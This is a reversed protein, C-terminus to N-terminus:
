MEHGGQSRFVLTPDAGDSGPVHEVTGQVCRLLPLKGSKSEIGLVTRRMAIPAFNCIEQDLQSLIGNNCRDCVVGPPLVLESNGLSEPFAHETSTFGGDSRRCFLCGRQGATKRWFVAQERRERRQRLERSRQGM